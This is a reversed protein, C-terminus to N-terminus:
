NYYERREESKGKKLFNTLIKSCNKQIENVPVLAIFSKLTSKWKLTCISAALDKKHRNVILHQILNYIRAIVFV